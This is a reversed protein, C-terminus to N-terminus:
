DSSDLSLTRSLTSGGLVIGSTSHVTIPIPSTFDKRRSGTPAARLMETKRLQLPAVIQAYYPVYQRLWGTLGLYTELEKLTDPFRLKRIAELKQEATALGL